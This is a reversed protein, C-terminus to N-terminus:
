KTKDSLISILAILAIGFCSAGVIIERNIFFGIGGIIGLGVLIKFWKRGDKLEDKTFRAIVLGGLVSLILVSLVSILENMSFSSHNM